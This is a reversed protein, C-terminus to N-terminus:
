VQIDLLQPLRESNPVKRLEDFAIRRAYDTILWDDMKYLLNSFLEEESAKHIHIMSFFNRACYRYLKDADSVIVKNPNSRDSPARGLLDEHDGVIEVIPGILAEPYKVEKLISESLRKGEVLHRERLVSSYAKKSSATEPNTTKLELDESETVAFGIDHLMIAPIVIDPDGGLKELLQLAFDISIRTHMLDLARGKQLHRKCLNWIDSYKEIMM